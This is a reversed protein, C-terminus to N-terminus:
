ESQQQGDEARGKDQLQDAAGPLDPNGRWTELVEGAGDQTMRDYHAMAASLDQPRVGLGGSRAKHSLLFISALVLKDMALARCVIALDEGSPHYLVRELQADNLGTMEGFREKFRPLDGQRLADVLSQPTPTETEPRAPREALTESASPARTLDALGPAAAIGPGGATAGLAATRRRHLLGAAGWTIALAALILAGLAAIWLRSDDRAPSVPLLALQQGPQTTERARGQDPEPGPAQSSEPLAKTVIELGGEPATRSEEALQAQQLAALELDKESERALRESLRGIEARAAAQSAALEAQLAAQAEQSAALDAGLRERARTAEAGATVLRTALDSELRAIEVRSAERERDLQDRLQAVAEESAGLEAALGEATAAAESRTADLARTLRTELDDLAQRAASREAELDQKLAAVVERGTAVEATLREQGATAEQRSTELVDSLRDTETKLRAVEEQSIRLTAILKERAEVAAQESPLADPPLAAVQPKPRPKPPVALGGGTRTSAATAPRAALKAGPKATPWTGPAATLWGRNDSFQRVMRDYDRWDANLRESWGGGLDHDIVRIAAIVESFLDARRAENRRRTQPNAGGDTPMSLWLYKDKIHWFRALAQSAADAEGVPKALNSRRQHMAFWASNREPELRAMADLLASSLLSVYGWDDGGTKRTSRVFADQWQGGLTRDVVIAGAEAVSAAQGDLLGVRIRGRQRLDALRAGSQVYHLELGSWFKAALHNPDNDALRGFFAGLRSISAIARDIDLKDLEGERAAPASQAAARPSSWGGTGIIPGLFCLLAAIVVVAARRALPRLSPMATNPM